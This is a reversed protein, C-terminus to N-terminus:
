DYGPDFLKMPPPEAVNVITISRVKGPLRRIWGKKELSYIIKAAHSLSKMGAGLKVDEFSPGIPWSAKRYFDIFNLVELERATLGYQEPDKSPPNRGFFGRTFDGM